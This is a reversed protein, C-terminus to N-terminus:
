ATKPEQCIQFDATISNDVGRLMTQRFGGFGWLHERHQPDVARESPKIDSQPIAGPSM